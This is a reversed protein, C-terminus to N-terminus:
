LTLVGLLLSPILHGTLTAYPGTADQVGRSISAHPGAGSGTRVSEARCAIHRRLENLAGRNGSLPQSFKRLIQTFARM